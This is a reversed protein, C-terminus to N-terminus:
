ANTSAGTVPEDGTTILGALSKLVTLPPPLFVPSVLQLSAALSWLLIIAAVTVGSILVTSDRATGNRVPPEPRQPLNETLDTVLTM